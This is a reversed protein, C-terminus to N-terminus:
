SVSEAFDIAAQKAETLTKIKDKSKTSSMPSFTEGYDGVGFGKIARHSWGYWKGDKTSYGISCVSHEPDSIEPIIGKDILRQATKKDGIYDGHHNYVSEMEMNDTGIWSCDWIEERLEFGNKMHKSSVFEKKIDKSATRINKQTHSAYKNFLDSARSYLSEEDLRRCIDLLLDSHM